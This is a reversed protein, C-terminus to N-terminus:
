GLTNLHADDTVGDSVRAKAGFRDGEDGGQEVGGNRGGIEGVEVEAAPADFEMETLDFDVEIHVDQATFGGVHDLAFQAHVEDGVVKDSAEHLLGGQGVINIQSADGEFASQVGQALKGVGEGPGLVFGAGDGSDDIFHEKGDGTIEDGKAGISGFRADAFATWFIVSKEGFGSM